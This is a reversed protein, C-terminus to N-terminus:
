QTNWTISACKYVLSNPQVVPIGNYFLVQTVDTEANTPATCVTSCFLFRDPFDGNNVTTVQGSCNKGCSVNLGNNGIALTETMTVGNYTFAQGTQDVIYETIERDWGAMGSVCAANIESFVTSFLKSAYLLRVTGPGTGSSPGGPCNSNGNSYCFNPIYFPVFASDYASLTTTGPAVGTVMGLNVTAVSTASSTWSSSNTLNYQTGSNWQIYFTQQAQGGVTVAFPDFEFGSLVEGGCTECTAGCVAKKVNYIGADESILINQQEGLSGTIEASGEHIGAPVINGDADPIASGSIESVNFTRTERAALHIPYAYHGGTFYLTFLFDQDEDAPNWLTFMTDDGNGTSWYSISKGASEAVGHPVVEFVYTNTADVSGGNMVLAGAQATIGLVLNVSGNYNKLGAASLLASANMNVTRHPLVTVQPLQASQPAAGKMWWLTPTVSAPQNSINRIVSYPTFVTSSPFNMMPDAAGSLVDKVFREPSM